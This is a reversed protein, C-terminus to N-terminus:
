RPRLIFVCLRAVAAHYWYARNGHTTWAANILDHGLLPAALLDFALDWRSHSSMQWTKRVDRVVHDVESIPFPGLGQGLPIGCCLLLVTAVAFPKTEPALLSLEDM